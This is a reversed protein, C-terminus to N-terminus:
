SSEFDTEQTPTTFPTIAVTHEAVTAIRLLFSFLVALPLFGLIVVVPVAIKLYGTTALPEPTSAYVLLLLLASGIAPVGVFLLIKSLRALESQIYISKFYQRAIDVQKLNQTLDDLTEKTTSSLEDTYEMKIRFAENLQHSYNTELTVALASFVGGQSRDLVDSIHDIHGTIKSVLDDVDAVLEAHDTDTVTDGLRHATDRTGDLLVSLFDAPTPPPASAGTTESVSNRYDIVTEIQDHLERPTKLERSLVLQNISLVITVLTMNGGVLAQFLYLMQTTDTVIVVSTYQLAVVCVAFVALLVATLVLRDGVLVFWEYPSSRLKQLGRKFRSFLVSISTVM